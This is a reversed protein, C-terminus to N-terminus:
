RVTEKRIQKEARDLDAALNRKLDSYLFSAAPREM